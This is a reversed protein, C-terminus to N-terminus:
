QTIVGGIPEATLFYNSDSVNILTDGNPNTDQQCQLYADFTSASSDVGYGVLSTQSFIAHSSIATYNSAGGARAIYAFCSVNSTASGRIPYVSASVNFRYSGAPIGTLVALTTPRGAQDLSVNTGLRTKYVSPPLGAPGAPGQPGAPGMPGMAGSPGAPGQAGQAGTAGTPDTISWTVIVEGKICPTGAPVIRTTGDKQLVCAYVQNSQASVSTTVLSTAGVALLTALKYM